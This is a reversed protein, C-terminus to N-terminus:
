GGAAMVGDAWATILGLAAFAGIAFVVIAAYSGVVWRPRSDRDPAAATALTRVSGLSRRAAPYGVAATADTLNGVLEARLDKRARGTVGEVDLWYDYALMTRRIRFWEYASM